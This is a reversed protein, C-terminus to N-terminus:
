NKARLGEFCAESFRGWFHIVCIVFIGFFTTQVNKKAIGNITIDIFRQVGRTEPVLAGTAFTFNEGRQARWIVLSFLHGLQAYGMNKERQARWM